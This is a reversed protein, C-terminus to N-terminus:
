ATNGDNDWGDNAARTQRVELPAKTKELLSPNLSITGKEDVVENSTYKWWQARTSVHEHM